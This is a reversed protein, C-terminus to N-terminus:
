LVIGSEQLKLFLEPDIYKQLNPEGGLGKRKRTKTVFDRALSARPVPKMAPLHCEKDLPDGPTVDWRCFEMTCFAQGQTALRIDVDLGVSEIVPVYGELEYMKTAVIAREHVAWGRRKDLLTHVASLCNYTCTIFVKYMPELLRPGATLLGIHVANRTMPIIQSSSSLGKSNLVADLIKFKTDRIAEGCLPGENVALDFGSVIAPRAELLREKDTEGELSDDLLISPFQQGRPGMCWLSRAALADWKFEQRLIKATERQPQSLSIRGNAIAASLKSDRVPEAIISIQNQKSASYSSLKTVSREECTESFRVMADSVKISLYDPTLYRLDHLFCDLFLEGTGLITYEGSEELKISAAPYIKSLSLLGQVLRPLEAPHECEVAVKYVSSADNQLRHFRVREQSPCMAGYLSASKSVSDELGLIMVISGAAALDVRVNYRGGCLHLASIKEIRMDNEGSLVYIKDGIRIEGQYVRAFSQYSNRESDLRVSFVEAVVYDTLSVHVNKQNMNVTLPSKVTDVIAQVLDRLDKFINSFVTRLLAQPDEKYASKPLSVGFNDWLLESLSNDSSESVLSHTVLKYIPEVIFSTFTSTWDSSSLKAFKGNTYSINGWLLKEFKSTEVNPLGGTNEYLRVWTKLTFTTRLNYSAFVVNNMLPSILKNHTYSFSYENDYICSNLDDLTHKIKLHFDTSPLRLELILRDFKNLVVVFPLNKKILNSVIRKDRGTVGELVDIVLIAGEVVGLALELEEQFDPHGPCDILNIPHSRYRLDQLLLSLPSSRMSIGREHELNHTDLYRTPKGNQENRRSPRVEPHTEMVLLDILSTKGVHLGGVVAVNRIREPQSHGLSVLYDKPYTTQPLEDDICKYELTKTTVIPKIVPQDTGTSTQDVFITEAAEFADLLNDTKVLAGNNTGEDDSDLMDDIVEGNDLIHDEGNQLSENDSESDAADGIYNGFEDYQDDSEMTTPSAYPLSPPLFHPSVDVSISCEAKKSSGSTTLFFSKNM